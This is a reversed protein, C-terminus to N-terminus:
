IPSFQNIQSKNSQYESWSAYRNIKGILGNDILIRIITLVGYMNNYVFM